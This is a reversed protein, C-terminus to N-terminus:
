RTAALPSQRRLFLHPHLSTSGLFWRKERALGHDVFEQRPYKKEADIQMDLSKERAENLTSPEQHGTVTPASAPIQVAKGPVVRISRGLHHELKKQRVTLRSKEWDVDSWKLDKVEGPFRIGAYRLLAFVLRWDNEPCAAIVREIDEAPVYVIREDTVQSGCTVEAIKKSINGAQDHAASEQRRDRDSPV